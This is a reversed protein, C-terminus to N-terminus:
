RAVASLDLERENLRRGMIEAGIASRIGHLLALEKATKGPRAANYDTRLGILEEDNVKELIEAIEFVSNCKALRSKVVQLRSGLTAEAEVAPRGFAM